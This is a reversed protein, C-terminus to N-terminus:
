KLEKYKINLQELSRFVFNGDKEFTGIQRLQKNLTEYDSIEKSLIITPVKTINYKVIIEKGDGASVDMYKESNIFIGLGQFSGKLETIDFCDSCSKDTIYTLDVMGKIKGSSIEKYPPLQLNLLYYNEKEIFANEIKPFIWWYDQIDKSILLSPTFKLDNEQILNKGNESVSNIIEYNKIKIGAQKLSNQINSLPMCDGCSSDQIEIVNVLGKVDGSVLDIYPVAKDFIAKKGDISFVGELGQIEKLKNSTIILSPIQKLNYKDILERGEKSYYNFSKRSKVKLNDKILSDALGTVNFCDECSNVTIETIEVSIKNQSNFITKPMFNVYVFFLVAISSIIIIAILYDRESVKKNRWKNIEKSEKEIDTLMNETNM